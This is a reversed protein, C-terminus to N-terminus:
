VLFFQTEALPLAEVSLAPIIVATASCADFNSGDLLDGTIYKSFSLLEHVILLIPSTVTAIKLFM